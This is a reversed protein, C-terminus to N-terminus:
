FQPQVQNMPEASACITPPLPHVHYRLLHLNSDWLLASLTRRPNKGTGTETDQDSNLPDEDCKAKDQGRLVVHM